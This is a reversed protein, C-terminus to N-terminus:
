VVRRDVAPIDICKSVLEDLRQRSKVIESSVTTQCAGIVATSILREDINELSENYEIAAEYSYGNYLKATKDAVEFVRKATLGSKHINM